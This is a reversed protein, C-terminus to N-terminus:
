ERADSNDEDGRYVTLGGLGSSKGVHLADIGWALEEHYSEQGIRDYAEIEGSVWREPVLNRKAFLELVRPMVGPEAAAQISFCVTAASGDIPVARSSRGAPLDSESRDRSFM